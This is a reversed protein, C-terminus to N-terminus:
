EKELKADKVYWEGDKLSPDPVINIGNFNLSEMKALAAIKRALDCQMNADIGFARKFYNDYDEKSNQTQNMWYHKWDLIVKRINDETFMELQKELKQFKDFYEQAWREESAAEGELRECNPCRPPNLLTDDNYFEAACQICFSAQTGHECPKKGSDNTM